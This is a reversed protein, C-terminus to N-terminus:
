IEHTLNQVTILSASSSLVASSRPIAGSRGTLDTRYLKQSDHSQQILRNTKMSRQKRILPSDSPFLKKFDYSAKPDELQRSKSEVRSSPTRNEHLERKASEANVKFQTIHENLM